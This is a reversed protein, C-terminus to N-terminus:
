LGPPPDFAGLCESSQRSRAVSPERRPRAYSPRPHTASELPVGPLSQKFTNQKWCCVMYKEVTLRFPRRTPATADPTDRTCSRSYLIPVVQANRTHKQTSKPRWGHRLILSISKSM